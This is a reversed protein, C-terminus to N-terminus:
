KVTTLLYIGTKLETFTLNLFEKTFTHTFYLALDNQEFEKYNQILDVYPVPTQINPDRQPMTTRFRSLYYTGTENARSIWFRLELSFWIM